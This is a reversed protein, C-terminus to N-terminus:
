GMKLPTIPRPSFSKICFVKLKIKVVRELSKPLIKVFSPELPKMKVVEGLCM